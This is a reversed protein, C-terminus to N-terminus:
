RRARPSKSERVVSRVLVGFYVTSVIVGLGEGESKGSWLCAKWLRLVRLERLEHLVRPGNCVLVVQHLRLRLQRQSLHRTRSNFGEHSRSPIFDSSSDPVLM